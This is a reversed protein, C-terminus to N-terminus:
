GSLFMIASPSPRLNGDQPRALREQPDLPHFDTDVISSNAGIAVNNGIRVSEAVCIAGGTMGFNEGIELVAGAQLTSLIVPHNPGLPNSAPSSRLSFGNGFNMKSARHKQIIPVGYFKWGARWPIGNAAMMARMWPDILWSGLLNWIKWPTQFGQLITNM